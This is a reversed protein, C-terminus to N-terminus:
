FIKPNKKTKKDVAELKEIDALDQYRGSVKKNKILEKFGIFYVDESGYKGIKKNEWIEEFTCGPISTILDIRIPEQGLQVIQEPKAFDKKTLQLSAFGFDEIAKIIKKGNAESPEVLIDMDKTYRPRGHFGVAFAGVVCYRVKHKNFYKLLELFDEQVYM